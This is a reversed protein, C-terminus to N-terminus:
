EFLKKHIQGLKRRFFRDKGNLIIEADRNNRNLKAIMENLRFSTLDISGDCAWMCVIKDIQTDENRRLEDMLADEDTSDDGCADRIVKTYVNFRVTKMVVVETSCGCDTIEGSMKRATELLPLFEEMSFDENRDDPPEMFSRGSPKSVSKVFVFFAKFRENERVADFERRSEIMCLDAAANIARGHTGREEVLELSPVSGKWVGYSGVWLMRLHERIQELVDLGEESKGDRVLVAALRIEVFIRERLFLDDERSSFLGILALIKRYHAEEHLFGYIYSKERQSEGPVPPKDNAMAWVANMLAKFLVTQRQKEWRESHLAFYRILLVDDWTSLSADSTVYSQWMGIKDEDEHILIRSLLRPRGEDSCNELAKRCIERAQEVDREYIFGDRHLKISERFFDVGYEAPEAKALKELIKRIKRRASLDIDFSGDKRLEKLEEELKRKTQGDRGMLEDVTVDFYEAIMPLQEIDPYSQGTEWRSVSQSTVSFVEALESQTLGRKKRLDKLIEGLQVKM